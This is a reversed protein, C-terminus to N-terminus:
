GVVALNLPRSAVGITVTRGWDFGLFDDEIGDGFIVGGTNMESVLRLATDGQCCGMTIRTGTAISPFAERVFFALMADTPEPLELADGRSLNISRAWGTAGTGTAVIVGSSSQREEEGKWLIRYRASQHSRHGVFIENLAVLSQQGDLRAEAMTHEALAIPEGADLRAFAELVADPSLQVLVGDYREPLPNVGLVIQGDLYKAVNAVLGDQGVALIVDGPEFLFRDLDDRAVQARRWRSPIAALVGTLVRHIAAHEAEIADIEQGRSRVFFEAQGRTAHRALLLEYDTPRRVVVARPPLSSM